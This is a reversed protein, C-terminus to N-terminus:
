KTLFKLIRQRSTAHADNPTRLIKVPEGIKDLAYLATVFLRANATRGTHPAKDAFAALVSLSEPLEKYSRACLLSYLDAIQAAMEPTEAMKLIWAAQIPARSLKAVAGSRLMSFFPSFVGWVKLLQAATNKRKVTDSANALMGMVSSAVQPLGACDGASRPAGRDTVTFTKEDVGFAVAMRVSVGSLIVASLRHQGDILRGPLTLNGTFAIQQHTVMWEGDKMQAAYDRVLSKRLQRNSTNYALWNAAIEPTVLIIESNM